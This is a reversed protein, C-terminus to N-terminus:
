WRVIVDAGAERDRCPGCLESDYDFDIEETDGAKKCSVCEALGRVFKGPITIVYISGESDMVKFEEGDLRLLKRVVRFYFGPKMVDEDAIEVLGGEKGNLVAKEKDLLSVAHRFEEHLKMAQKLEEYTPKESSSRFSYFKHKAKDVEEKYRELRVSTRFESM